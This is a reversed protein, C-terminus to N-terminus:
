VPSLPPSRATNLRLYRAYYSVQNPALLKHSFSLYAFSHVPAACKNEFASQMLCQVCHEDTEILDHEAEHAVALAQGFLILAALCWGILSKQNTLMPNDMTFGNDVMACAAATARPM